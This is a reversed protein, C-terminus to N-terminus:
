QRGIDISFGKEMEAKATLFKMMFSTDVFLTFEQGTELKRVDHMNYHKRGETNSITKVPELGLYNMLIPEEAMTIVDYADRLSYGNGSIVLDRILGSKMWKFFKYDGFKKSTRSLSAAQMVVGLHGMHRMILNQYEEQYEQVAIPDKETQIYFALETMQNMVDEGVPDYQLTDTYYRRLNTFNFNYPMENLATRVLSEYRPGSSHANRQIDHISRYRSANPFDNQAYVKASSVGVVCVCVLFSLLIRCIM